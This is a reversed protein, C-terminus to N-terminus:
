ERGLDEKCYIGFVEGREIKSGKGGGTLGTFLCLWELSKNNIYDRLAKYFVVFTASYLARLYYSCLWYPM